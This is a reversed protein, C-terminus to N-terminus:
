DLRQAENRLRRSASQLSERAREVQKALRRLVEPKMEAPDIAAPDISLLAALNPTVLRLERHARGQSSAPASTAARKDNYNPLARISTGPRPPLSGGGSRGSGGRPASVPQPGEQEPPATSDGPPPAEDRVGRPIRGSRAQEDFGNAERAFRSATRRVRRAQDASRVLEALQDGLEALKDAADDLFDAKERLEPPGDLPNLAVRYRGWRAAERPHPDLKALQRRWRRRRVQLHQLTYAAQRREEPPGTKLRPSLTRMTEDLVGIAARLVKALSQRARERRADASNLQQEMAVSRVLLAQLEPHDADQQKLADISAALIAEAKALAGVEAEVSALYQRAAYIDADDQASATPLAAVIVLFAATLRPSFGWVKSRSWCPGNRARRVSDEPGQRLNEDRPGGTRLSAQARAWRELGRPVWPENRPTAFLPNRIPRLARLPREVRGPPVTLEGLGSVSKQHTESRTAPM